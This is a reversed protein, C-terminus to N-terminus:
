NLHISFQKVLKKSEGSKATETGDTRSNIATYVNKWNVVLVDCMLKKKIQIVITHAHNFFNPYKFM